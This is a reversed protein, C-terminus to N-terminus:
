HRSRGRQGHQLCQLRKNKECHIVSTKTVDTENNM